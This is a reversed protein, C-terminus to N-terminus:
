DASPTEVHDIVLIEMPSTQTELKLGLQEQLATFLSSGQSGRGVDNAMGDPTGPTWKLTFDYKGNLGTKDLVPRGLQETLQKVLDALPVGQATVGNVQGGGLGMLMAGAGSRGGPGKFGTPYTDGPKAEQLKPGNQAIVLAYIPLVKTEHHLALKFRDALLAQLMRQQALNRQDASLNRLDNAVSDEVEAEVDFIESNLWSPSRSIQQSEVGYAEQIVAQLTVNTASFGEPTSLM